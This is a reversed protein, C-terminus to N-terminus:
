DDDDNKCISQNEPLKPTPYTARPWLRHPLARPFDPSIPSLHLSNGHDARVLGLRSLDRLLEGTHTRHRARPRPLVDVPDDSDCPLGGLLGHLDDVSNGAVDPHDHHEAIVAPGVDRPHM